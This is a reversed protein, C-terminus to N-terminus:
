LVEPVIKYIYYINKSSFFFCSVVKFKEGQFKSKYDFLISLVQQFAEKVKRARTRTMPGGLPDKDKSKTM